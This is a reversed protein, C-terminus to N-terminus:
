AEKPELSLAERALARELGIAYNQANPKDHLKKVLGNEILCRAAKEIDRLGAIVRAQEAIRRDKADHLENERNATALQEDQIEAICTEHEELQRRLAALQVTCIDADPHEFCLTGGADFRCVPATM